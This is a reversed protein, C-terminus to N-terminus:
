ESIRKSRSTRGHAVFFGFGNEALHLVAAEGHLLGHQLQLQLGKLIQAVGLYVVVAPEALSNGLHDVSGPLGRLLDGADDGGHLCRALLGNEDGAQGRLRCTDNPGDM